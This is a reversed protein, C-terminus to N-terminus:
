DAAELTGWEPRWLNKEDVVGIGLNNAQAIEVAATIAQHAGLQADHDISLATGAESIGPPVEVSGLTSSPEGYIRLTVEGAQPQTRKIFLITMFDVL